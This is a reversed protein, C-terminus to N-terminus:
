DEWVSADNWVGSDNWIGGALSWAGGGGTLEQLYTDLAVFLAANESDSLNGGYGLAAVHRTAFTPSSGNRGCVHLTTNSLGANTKSQRILLNGDKYLRQFNAEEKCVSHLGYSDAVTASTTAGGNVDGFFSTGSLPTITSNNSGMIAVGSANETVVYVFMSADNALFKASPATTPNFQTDFKSTSGDGALYGDAVASPAGIPLLTFSTSKFNLYTDDGSPAVVHLGDLKTWIGATKLAAIFVNLRSKRYNTPTSVWRALLATTESEFAAEANVTISLATNHTGFSTTETATANITTAGVAPTGIVLNNGSAVIRPDDFTIVSGSYRNQIAGILTGAEHGVTMVNVSLSLDRLAPAVPTVSLSASRVRDTLTGVSKTGFFPYVRATLDWGVPITLEEMEIRNEGLLFLRGDQPFWRFGLSKPFTTYPNTVTDSGYGMGWYTASQTSVTSGGHKTNKTMLRSTSGGNDMWLMDTQASPLDTKSQALGIYPTRTASPTVSAMATVYWEVCQCDNPIFGEDDFLYNQAPTGGSDLTVCLGRSNFALTPDTTGTKVQTLLAPLSRLKTFDYNRYLATTPTAPSLALFSTNAQNRKPGAAAGISNQNSGNTAGYILGWTSGLDIVSPAELEDEDFSGGAGHTLVLIPAGIISTAASDLLVEYISAVSPNGGFASTAIGMIISYGQGVKRMTSMHLRIWAAQVGAPLGDTVRGAVKQMSGTRTWAGSVPDDTGWQGMTSRGQGGLLSYGVYQYQLGTDPNILGTIVSPGWEFYGTHGDGVSLTVVTDLLLVGNTWNVGDNSLSRMTSQDRGGPTGGNFAQQQTTMVMKSGVIQVCPTEVQADNIDHRHYIPNATPKATLYDFSGATVADDYSIWGSAATPNGNTLYLYVGNNTNDDSHDTSFYLAWRYPFSAISSMDVACPYYPGDDSVPSIMLPPKDVIKETKTFAWTSYPAPFMGAAAVGGAGLSLRLGLGLELPQLAASAYLDIM